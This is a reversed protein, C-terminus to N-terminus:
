HAELWNEGFGIEVDMPVELELADIMLQKINKKMLDKEDRHVDFVLEDHVQLIMKSKLKENKMWQDINIMAKKIIDAASGQIPANIANREAFGRDTANGSNIDRLYRRRGMVTEAYENEKALNVTDDMYKKVASFEEFYSDIIQKAEGRPINLRQSLGFASIGYIIGFNATKAKRRMNSNVEELPVKFIKSATTAHIDRGNKFAEIMHEDKAFSAMIRLEIQSYDAAMLIHNEDRPVFAKRIERGKETRIPINQLNPNISSLRGTVAVAQSYNTHIRNDRKSIMMPLADVYTSKLKQYERFDLIRNVIKHENALKFLIEEGTAYQGTKTKKPKDVLKMKDFLVEGLQKPSAINFEVGALQYIDDQAKISEQQLDESMNKLVSEDVRVGEYEMDALVSVLPQELDHLLDHMQHSEIESVLHEKLQLTIDADEGAYEVVEQPDVDRMNGQKKGKPGILLTIPVPTYNLYQEALADMNHKTEPSILYHALMTDFIATSVDIGYKKLVLIDYKINQGIKVISQNELVEKFDNIILQAEKEDAPIPVYYAEGKFYSFAIGVLEAEAADVDTTETDFCFEKQQLLFSVLEKRLAPTDILHYEHEVTEITHKEIPVEEEADKEVSTQTASTPAFMSLQNQVAQTSKQPVADEGFVRKTMNKFELDDFLAKLKEEDPGNYTMQESNYELPVNIDITVLEKSLIGQDGFNEVNEKQKGKLEHAHAVLNEVTDYIKLLKVATKAGIGPIGPINDAADGQLGLFDRIQDIRAIDWKALVEPVGLIDVGNGMFAPKYLYVHEEVLQAYDKDPTMMFVEFGEKSAKKAFTGIIDDAEFGQLELVPINFARVIDKVIPVGIKIDQPTEERHAKYAPFQEHRFTPESVDFAVAIHTPKQKNIIELLVNTFGFMVGTNLGKSNIRPNKSFAFHARYILAFADLLFLKKDPKSM